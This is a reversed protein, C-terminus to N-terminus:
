LKAEAADLRKLLSAIIGISRARLAEQAQRMASYEPTMPAPRVMAEASLQRVDALEDDTM